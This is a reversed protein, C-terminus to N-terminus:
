MVKATPNQVTATSRRFDWVTKQLEEVKEARKSGPNRLTEGQKTGPKPKRRLKTRNLKAAAKKEEVVSQAERGKRRRLKTRKAKEERCSQGDLLRGM